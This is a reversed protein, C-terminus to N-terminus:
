PAEEAPTLIVGKEPNPILFYAKKGIQDTEATLQKMFDHDGLPAHVVMVDPRLHEVFQMYRLPTIYGWGGFIISDPAAATLSTTAWTRPSVSSNQQEPWYSPQQHFTMIEWVVLSLVLLIPILRLNGDVREWIAQLGFVIWVSVSMIAIFLFGTDEHYVMMYHGSFLAIILFTPFTLLLLFRHHKYLWVVGLLALIGGLISYNATIWVAWQRLIAPLDIANVQWLASSSSTYSGGTIFKFLGALWFPSIYGRVVADPFGFTEGPFVAMWKRAHLLILGYLSFPALFLIVAGLIRRAKLDNSRKLLAFFPWPLAAVLILHHSAALGSLLALWELKIRHHYYQYGALWLLFLLLVALTYVEAIVAQRWLMPTLALTVGGLTSLVPSVGSKNFLIMGVGATATAFIASLLTIRWAITGFPIIAIEIKGLLQYLPYGSPHLVGGIPILAQFEASDGPLIDPPLTVFYIIFIVFLTLIGAIQPSIRQTDVM